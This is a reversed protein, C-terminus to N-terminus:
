AAALILMARLAWFGPRGITAGGPVSRWFAAAATARRPFTTRRRARRFIYAHRRTDSRPCRTWAHVCLRRAPYVLFAGVGEQGQLDNSISVPVIQGAAQKQETGCRGDFCQLSIMFALVSSFLNSSGHSRRLRRRRDDSRSLSARSFHSFPQQASVPQSSLTQSPPSNQMQCGFSRSARRVM